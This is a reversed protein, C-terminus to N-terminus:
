LQSIEAAVAPVRENIMLDTAERVDLEYAVRNEDYMGWRVCVCVSHDGLHADISSLDLQQRQSPIIIVFGTFTDSSLPVRFSRVLEPRLMRFFVGRGDIHGDESYVSRTLSRASSM